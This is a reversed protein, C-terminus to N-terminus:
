LALGASLALLSLGLLWTVTKQITGEKVLSNKMGMKRYVIEANAIQYSYVTNDAAIDRPRVYGDLSMVNKEGNVELIREGELKLMGNPAEETITATMKGTLKEKQQTDTSGDHSNAIESSAGFLPLFNTLNGSVSGSASANSSSSNNVKSAKSANATEMILVTVIDGVKVAKVDNYLSNTTGAFRQATLLNGSFMLGTLLLIFYSSNRM